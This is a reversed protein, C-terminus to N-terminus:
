ICTHTLWGALWGALWGVGWAFPAVSCACWSEGGLGLTAAYPITICFSYM